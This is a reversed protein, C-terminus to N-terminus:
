ITKIEFSDYKKFYLKFNQIDYVVSYITYEYKDQVPTAGYPQEVTGLLHFTETINDFKDNTSNLQKKYYNIRAFREMSTLGGCLGYTQTGRSQSNSPLIKNITEGIIEGNFYKLFNMQKPFPPNNTLTDTTNTYIQLGDKQTQEVTISNNKDCIFWHLPSNPLEESFPEDVIRVNSLYKKAESVDKCSGLVKVPLEWPRLNTKTDDRNPYYYANGEFNLASICLGRENMADYYLPYKSIDATIGKIKYTEENYTTPIENYSIEYDFNRGMCNQYKITTCM